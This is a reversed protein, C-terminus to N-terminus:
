SQSQFIKVGIAKVLVSPILVRFIVKICSNFKQSYSGSSVETGRCINMYLLSHRSLRICDKAIYCLLLSLLRFCLSQNEVLRLMISTKTDKYTCM